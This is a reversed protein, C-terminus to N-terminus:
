KSAAKAKAAARAATDHDKGHGHHSSQPQEAGADLLVQVADQRATHMAMMLATDEDEPEKANVDARGSILVKMAEVHGGQAALMLSTLGHQDRADVSAKAKLLVRVCEAQGNKSAWMLPTECGRNLAHADAGPHNALLMDELAEHDGRAAASFVDDNAENERLLAVVEKHGNLCAWRLPTFGIYAHNVDVNSRLLERIIEIDGMQAALRLRQTMNQGDNRQAMGDKQNGKGRPALALTNCFVNM